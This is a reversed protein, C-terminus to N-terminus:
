GDFEYRKRKQSFFSRRPNYGFITNYRASFHLHQHRITKLEPVVKQWQDFSSKTSM